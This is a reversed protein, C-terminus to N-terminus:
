EIPKRGVALLRNAALGYPAGDLNGFLQIDVFGASEMLMRLEQGSYITHHLTFSTVDDGQVLVWDNRIRTFDDFIERRRIVLSGDEYRTSNTEEFIRALLEKGMMDIVFVGGPKLSALINRLVTMDTEKDDFYGFSTYMSIALDFADPRIFHSMDEQVFEIDLNEAEARERAKGLLFATRDVGTVRFGRAALATAHRGPGCCLDLAAGGTVGTLALVKDVQEGAMEMTREPFMYPYSTIWFSDNNFWEPM